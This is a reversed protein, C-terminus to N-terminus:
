VLIDDWIRRTPPTGGLPDSTALFVIPIRLRKVVLVFCGRSARGEDRGDSAGHARTPWRCAVGSPPATARLLLVSGRSCYRGDRVRVIHFYGFGSMLGRFYPDGRSFGLVAPHAGVASGLVGCLGRVIHLVTALARRM